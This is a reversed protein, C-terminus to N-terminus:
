GQPVGSLIGHCSSYFSNKKTRQTKEPLYSYISKLSIHSFGYADLKAILLKHSLCYFAKPLDTGLAGFTNHKILPGFAENNNRRQKELVAIFCLQRSFGKWFGYKYKSFIQNCCLPM